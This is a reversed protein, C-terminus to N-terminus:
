GVWKQRAFVLHHLQGGDVQCVRLFVDDTADILLHGCYAKQLEFVDLTKILLVQETVDFFEVRHGVLVFALKVRLLEVRVVGVPEVPEEGEDVVVHAVLLEHVHAARDLLRVLSLSVLVEDFLSGHRLAGLIGADHLPISRM